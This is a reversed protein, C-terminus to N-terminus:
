PKSNKDSMGSDDHPVYREVEFGTAEVKLRKRYATAYKAFALTLSVTGFGALLLSAIDFM